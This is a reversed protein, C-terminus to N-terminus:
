KNEKEDMTAKEAAAGVESFVKSDLKYHSVVTLFFVKYVENESDSILISRFKPFHLMESLRGYLLDSPFSPLQVSSNDFNIARWVLQRVDDFSLAENIRTMKPYPKATQLQLLLSSQLITELSEMRLAM